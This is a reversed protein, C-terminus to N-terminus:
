VGIVHWVPYGHAVGMKELKLKNVIKGNNKNLWRGLRDNSLSGSQKSIAVV